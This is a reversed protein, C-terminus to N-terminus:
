EISAIQFIWDIQSHEQKFNTLLKIRRPSSDRVIPNKDGLNGCSWSFSSMTAVGVWHKVM